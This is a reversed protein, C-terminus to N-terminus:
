KRLNGLEAAQIFTCFTIKLRLATTKDQSRDCYVMFYIAPTVVIPTGLFSIVFVFFTFVYYEHLKILM